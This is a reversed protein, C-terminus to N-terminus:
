PRIFNFKLNINSDDSSSANVTDPDFFKVGTINPPLNNDIQNLLLTYANCNISELKPNLTGSILTVVETPFSSKLNFISSIESILQLKFKYHFSTTYALVYTKIEKM